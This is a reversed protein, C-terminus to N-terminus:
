EYLFDYLDARKESIDNRTVTTYTMDYEVLYLHIIDLHSQLYFEYSIEKDLRNSLIEIKTAVTKADMTGDLFEDILDLANEGIEIANETLYSKPKPDNSCGVMGVVMLVALMLAVFKKM